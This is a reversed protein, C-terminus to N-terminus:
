SVESWHFTKTATGFTLGVGSKHLLVLKNSCANYCFFSLLSKNIIHAHAHKFHLLLICLNVHPLRIHVPLHTVPAGCLVTM